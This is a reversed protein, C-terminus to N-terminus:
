LLQSPSPRGGNTSVVDGDRIGNARGIRTEVTSLLRMTRRTTLFHAFFYRSTARGSAECIQIIKPCFSQPCCTSITFSADLMMFGDLHGMGDCEENFM